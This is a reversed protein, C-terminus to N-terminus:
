RRDAMRSGNCGTLVVHAHLPRHRAKRVLRAVARVLRATLSREASRVARRVIGSRNRIENPFETLEARDGVDDSM